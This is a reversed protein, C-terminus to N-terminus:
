LVPPLSTIADYPTAGNNPKQIKPSSIYLSPSYQFIEAACTSRPSNSSRGGANSCSPTAPPGPAASPTTFELTKIQFNPDYAHPNRGYAIWYNNNWTITIIPNAPLSGLTSPNITYTGASAPIAVNITRTTGRILGGGRTTQIKIQVNYSYGISAPPPWPGNPYNDYALKFTYNSGAPTGSFDYTASYNEWNFVTSGSKTCPTPTPSTCSTYDSGNKAYSSGPSGGSPQEDRLSGFTRAFNVQNAVFSGRVLLQNKCASFMNNPPANSPSAAGFGNGGTTANNCTYIKHDSIYDGDLETVGPDIYINGTAHVVFSPANAIATNNAYTINGTIRVDGNVFLSQSGSFNSIGAQTYPGAQYTTGSPPSATPLCHSGGPDYNGGLSPSDASSNIDAANTNAFSLATPSRSISTQASAFGTIKILALASLTSGAGRDSGGQNNNWGALLGGGTCSGTSSFNGGASVSNYAKQYPENVITVCNHAGPNTLGAPVVGGPGVYGQNYGGTFDIESCYQDGANLSTPTFTAPNITYDPGGPNYPGSTNVPGAKNSVSGGYPKVYFTSQTPATAAASGHNIIYTSYTMPGPNEATAYDLTAHPELLFFTYVPVVVSCTGLNGFTGDNMTFGITANQAGAPARVTVPPTTYSIDGTNLYGGAMGSGNVSPSGLTLVGTNQMHVTVQFQSNELVANGPGNPVNGVVGIADVWCRASFCNYHIRTQDGTLPQGSGDTSGAPINSWSWTGSNNHYYQRFVYVNVTPNRPTYTWTRSENNLVVFDAQSAPGHVMVQGSNDTVRVLTRIASSSFSKGNITAGGGDTVDLKSCESVASPPNHTPQDPHWVFTFRMNTGNTVPFKITHSGGANVDSDITNGAADLMQWTGPQGGPNDIHSIWFRNDQGNTKCNLVWGNGVHNWGAGPAGTGPGLVVWGNCQVSSGDASHMTTGFQFDGHQPWTDSNSVSGGSGVPWHYIQANDSSAPSESQITFHPNLPNGSEDRARLIMSAMVGSGEGDSDNGWTVSSGKYAVPPLGQDTAAGCNNPLADAAAHGGGVGLLLFAGTLVVTVAILKFTFKYM